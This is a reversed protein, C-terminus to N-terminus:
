VLTTPKELPIGEPCYFLWIHGYFALDPSFPRLFRNEANNILKGFLRQKRINLALNTEPRLFDRSASPVPWSPRVHFCVCCYFSHDHNGGIKTSM